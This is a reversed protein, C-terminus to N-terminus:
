QATVWVKGSQALKDLIEVFKERYKHKSITFLEELQDILLVIRAEKNVVDREMVLADDLAQNISQLFNDVDEEALKRYSAIDIKPTILEPLAEDSVLGRVLGLISDGDSESPKMIAHRCVAVNSMAGQKKIDAILGAKMLSSKGSGSCGVVLVAAKNQNIRDKLLDRLEHRAKTRGFFVANDEIEFSSLGLFPNGDEETWIAENIAIGKTDGSELKKYILLRIHKEFFKEFESAESFDKFAAKFSGGSDEFWRRWFTDLRKKDKACREIEEINEFKVVAACTKRYVLLDPRKNGSAEFAEKADLFEWETGTLRNGNEDTYKKPLEKGLRSWLIVAVIDSKSPRSIEDPFAGTALLPEWEWMVPKINCYYKFRKALHNVVDRAVLRENSVDSPSSIFVKITPKESM